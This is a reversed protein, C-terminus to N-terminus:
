STIRLLLLIEALYKSHAYPSSPKIKSNEKTPLEKPIGYCSASAAYIVKVNRKKAWELLM